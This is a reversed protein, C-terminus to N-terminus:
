AGHTGLPHHLMLTLCIGIDSRLYACKSAHDRPIQSRKPCDVSFNPRKREKVHGYEYKEGNYNM